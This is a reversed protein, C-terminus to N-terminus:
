RDIIHFRDDITVAEVAGAFPDKAGIEPVLGDDDEAIVITADDGAAILGPFEADGHCTGIELGPGDDFFMADGYEGGVIMEVAVHATADHFGQSGQHVVSVAVAIIVVLDLDIGRVFSKEIQAVDGRMLKM